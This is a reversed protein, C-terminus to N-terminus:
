GTVPRGARRAQARVGKVYAHLDDHLAFWEGELRHAAFHEHLEREKRMDGPITAVLKLRTANATQLDALRSKPSTSYGIKIAQRSQDYIFYIRGQRGTEPKSWLYVPLPNQRQAYQISKDIQRNMVDRVYSEALATMVMDDRILEICLDDIGLRLLLWKILPNKYKKSVLRVWGLM